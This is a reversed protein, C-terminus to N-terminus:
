AAVPRPVPTGAKWREYLLLSEPAITIRLRTGGVTLDAELAGGRPENARPTLTVTERTGVLFDSTSVAVFVAHEGTLRAKWARRATGAAFEIVDASGKSTAGRIAGVTEEIERTEPDAPRELFASAFQGLNGMRQVGWVLQLAGLFARAPSPPLGDMVALVAGILNYAGVLLLGLADLVIGTPRPALINWSGTGILVIGLVTLVWDVPAWLCGAIVSLVGFLVSWTGSLRLTRRAARYEAFRQLKSTPVARDM